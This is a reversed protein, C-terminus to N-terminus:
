SRLYLTSKGCLNLSFCTASNLSIKMNKSLFASPKIEVSSNPSERLDKPKKTEVM